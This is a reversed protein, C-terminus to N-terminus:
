FRFAEWFIASPLAHSAVCYSESFDGMGSRRKGGGQVASTVGFQKTTRSRPPCASM